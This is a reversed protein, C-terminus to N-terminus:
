NSRTLRQIAGRLRENENQILRQVSQYDRLTEIMRTMEIVPKVNSGELLGQKVRTQLAPTARADGISYINNGRAELEQLNEFESIMIQGLQGDQNSIVGNEDIEIETSGPPIVIDGGGASAVSLGGHIKLVGASDLEFGGDRTFGVEGDPGQIGIFGPGELAVDLQNGTFSVPGPDTLDYQGRNYVFSLEDDAGRPDSIYEEFLLNQGRYGNTNMNAVNNAVIDMNTRLTMQRSIGLYISNEM